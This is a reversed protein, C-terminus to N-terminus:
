WLRYTGPKDQLHRKQHHINHTEEAIGGAECRGWIIEDLKLYLGDEEM